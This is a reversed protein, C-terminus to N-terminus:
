YIFFEMKKANATGVDYVWIPESLAFFAISFKEHKPVKLCNMERKLLSKSLFTM